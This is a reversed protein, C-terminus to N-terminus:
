QRELYLKGRFLSLCLVVVTGLVRKYDDTVPFATYFCTASVAHPVDTSLFNM